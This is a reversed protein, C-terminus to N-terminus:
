RLARVSYIGTPKSPRSTTIRPDKPRPVYQPFGKAPPDDARQGPPKAGPIDPVNNPATPPKLGQSEFFMDDKNQGYEIKLEDSAKDLNKFLDPRTKELTSWASQFSLGHENRLKNVADHIDSQAARVAALKTDKDNM